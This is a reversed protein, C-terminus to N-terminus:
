IIKEKCESAKSIEILLALLIIEIFTIFGISEFLSM